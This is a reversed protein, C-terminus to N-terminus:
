WPLSVERKFDLVCVCIEGETYNCAATLTRAHGLMAARSVTVGLVSGDQPQTTYEVYAPTDDTLRPPAMWDRPPKQLHETIFWHLRPWGKFSIVEGSANKPLGKYCADSTLAVTVGCSGLLFGIQQSGADRRTVPVEIPVPVMGALICGYFSCMFNLPDSNPYVLAVRDGPKVSWTEGSSGGGASSSSSQRAYGAAAPHGIHSLLTYAIKQSRYFLTLYTLHNNMQLGLNLHMYRSLLKGYTLNITLKGNPDLVTAALAKYTASGYRQIAAELNRPLGTPVVLQQGQAPAMTSGEPSPANPDRSNAAMELEIDDDEFFEQLPRKKPKKLTNLLQQIKASVRYNRSATGTQSDQDSSGGSINSM